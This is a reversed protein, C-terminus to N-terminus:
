SRRRRRRKGSAPVSPISPVIQAIVEKAQEISMEGGALKDWLESRKIFIELEAPNLEKTEIIEEEFYEDSASSETTEEGESIGSEIEVDESM